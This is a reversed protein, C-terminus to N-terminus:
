GAVSAERRTQSKEIVCAAHAWTGSDYDKLIPKGRLVYAPCLPCRTMARSRVVKAMSGDTGTGNLWCGDLAISM